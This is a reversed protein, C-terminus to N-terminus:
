RQMTTPSAQAEYKGSNWATPRRIIAGSEGLREIEDMSYGISTLVSDTHEGLRPARRHKTRPPTKTLKFPAGYQVDHYGEDDTVEVHLGRLKIQPDEKAEDLTNVKAAETDVKSLIEWWEDRTKTMFREELLKIIEEGREGRARPEPALEPLGLGTVLNAWQIAEGAATAIYRGDKCEYVNWAASHRRFAGDGATEINPSRVAIVSDVIAMDIFQGEGTKERVYLAALISALPAVLSRTDPLNFYNVWPKGTYDGGMNGWGQGQMQLWGATAEWVLGHGPHRRYPGEQGYGTVSCM